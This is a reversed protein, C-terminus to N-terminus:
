RLAIVLSGTLRQNPLVVTASLRAAPPPDAIGELGLRFLYTRTVDDYHRLNAEVEKIDIEWAALRAAGPLADAAHLELRVVGLGKTTHGFRDFFEIRAEIVSVVGDTRLAHSLPHVRLSAPRFPWLPPRPESAPQPEPGSVHMNGNTSEGGDGGSERGGELPALAADGHSADGARRQEACGAVALLATGAALPILM